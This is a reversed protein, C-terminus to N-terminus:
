MDCECGVDANLGRKVLLEKVMFCLAFGKWVFLKIKPLIDLSWIWNVIFPYGSAIIGQLLSM